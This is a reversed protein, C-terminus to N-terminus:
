IYFFPSCSSVLLSVLNYFLNKKQCRHKWGEDNATNNDDWVETEARKRNGCSCIPRPEYVFLM